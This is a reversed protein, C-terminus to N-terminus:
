YRKEKQSIFVNCVRDLSQDTYLFYDPDHCSVMGVDSLKNHQKSTDELSGYYEAGRNKIGLLGRSLSSSDCEESEM